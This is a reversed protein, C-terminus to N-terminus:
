LNLAPRLSESLLGAKLSCRSIQEVIAEFNWDEEGLCDDLTFPGQKTRVLETMHARGEM